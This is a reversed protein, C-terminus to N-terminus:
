AITITESRRKRGHTLTLTYSGKAITRRPSLLLRTQRGSDIASGTAYLVKGRSLDAAIATGVTTFKVPSSTLKSTCRQVTKKHKGKGTTVPTCTVLEVQGAPGQAGATGAPGQAGNAGNTGAPGSPGSSQSIVTVPASTAVATVGTLPYTVTERCSLADAIEATAPTFSDTTQGAIAGGNLLWQFGDFSLLGPLPQQSAFNSWEAGECVQPIGAQGGGAVVPALISAAPAGTGIEGVGSVNPDTFWVNGDPGTAVGNPEGNDSPIAFDSTAHTVPNIEGIVGVGANQETFWLNGEPGVAIGEPRSSGPPTAFDSTAHTVPNIEGIRSAGSETFWLNGEPGAAIGFPISSSTETAFDSTAHTVPNIEGIKSVQYETFWLNGEPGAAIGTPESSPTPAAFDSTAHTVPNIEGIKSVSEETFWLNGEPGVAIGGLNGTHTPTAFDSTAHTVPNFEGIKSAIPETFWLNGEPGVAVSQASSPTPFDSTAHTVPNIEGIKEQGGEAFWLNGERGVVIGSPDSEATATAFESSQGLPAGLAVATFSLLLALSVLLASAGAFPAALLVRPAVAVPRLISRLSEM